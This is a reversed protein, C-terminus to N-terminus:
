IIKPGLKPNLVLFPKLIRSGRFEHYEKPVLFWSINPGGTDDFKFELCSLNWPAWGLNSMGGKKASPSPHGLETLDAKLLVGMCSKLEKEM